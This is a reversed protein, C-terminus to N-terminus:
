RARRRRRHRRRCRRRRGRRFDGGFFAAPGVVLDSAVSGRRRLELVGDEAMGEEIAIREADEGIVDGELLAGAGDVGGGAVALFIVDDAALVADGGVAGHIGGAAEIVGFARGAAQGFLDDALGDPFGVGDDDFDQLRVVRQQPM